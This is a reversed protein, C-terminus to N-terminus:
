GFFRLLRAAAMSPLSRMFVHFACKAAAYLEAVPGPALLATRTIPAAWGSFAYQLAYQSVPRLLGVSVAEAGVRYLSRYTQVVQVATHNLESLQQADPLPLPMPLPLTLQAPLPLPLSLLVPAGALRPPLDQASASRRVALLAFAGGGSGPFDCTIFSCASRRCALPFTRTPHSVPYSACEHVCSATGCRALGLLWRFLGPLGESQMNFGSLALVYTVAVAAMWLGLWRTDAALQREKATEFERWVEEAERRLREGEEGMRLQILRLAPSVKYLVGCLQRM